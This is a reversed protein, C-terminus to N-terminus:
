RRSSAPRRSSSATRRRSTRPARSRASRSPRPHRLLRGAAATRRLPLASRSTPRTTTRTPTATEPASRRPRTRSRQRDARHGRLLERDRLRRLRTDLRAPMVRDLARRVDTVLAVKGATASMAISGTADPTPLPTTGGAGAAEQVLYYGGAAITGSLATVQWTTGAASAYQVSWGTVDIASATRNHLEIYDNTLTAGSNGGGGYVESITINGVAFANGAGALAALAAAAVAAATSSSGGTDEGQNPAAGRVLCPRLPWARPSEVGQRAARWPTPWRPEVEEGTAPMSNEVRRRLLNSFHGLKGGEGSSSRPELPEDAVGGALGQAAAAGAPARAGVGKRELLSAQVCKFFEAPRVLQCCVEFGVEDLAEGRSADRHLVAADVDEVRGEALQARGDRAPQLM